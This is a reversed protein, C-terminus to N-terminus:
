ENVTNTLDQGSPFQSYENWQDDSLEGIHNRSHWARNLHEYVHFLYVQLEVSHDVKGNNLMEILNGLHEHADEHEYMFLAWEVPNKEKNIM